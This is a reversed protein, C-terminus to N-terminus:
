IQPEVRQLRFEIQRLTREAQPPALLEQQNWAARLALIERTLEPMRATVIAGSEGLLDRTEESDMGRAALEQHLDAAYEHAITAAAFYSDLQELPDPLEAM